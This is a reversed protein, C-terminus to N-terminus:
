NNEYKVQKLIDKLGASDKYKIYFDYNLWIACFNKLKDKFNEPKKLYVEINPIEVKENPDYTKLFKLYSFLTAVEFVILPIFIIGILLDQNISKVNNIFAPSLFTIHQIDTILYLVIVTLAIVWTKAKGALSSQVNVNKQFKVGQIIVISLEFLIPIIAYNTITLLVLLNAVSFAKDAFGDFVSGFFTAVKCKRAIIGDLFDTFYCMISLIAAAVGGHSKYIPLLCFVGIIRVATLFNVLLVAILKGM